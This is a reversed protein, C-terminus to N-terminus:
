VNSMFVFYIHFFIWFLKCLQLNHPLPFTKTTIQTSSPPFITNSLPIFTPSQVIHLFTSITTPTFRLFYLPSDILLLHSLINSIIDFRSNLSLLMVSLRVIADMCFAVDQCCEVWLEVSLEFCVVLFFAEYGFVSLVCFIGLSGFMSIM